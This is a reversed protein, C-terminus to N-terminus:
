TDSEANDSGAYIIMHIHSHIVWHIKGQTDHIKDQTYHIQGVYRVRRIQGLTHGTYRVRHIKGLTDPRTYRVLTDSGTYIQDQTYRIRYAPWPSSDLFFDRECGGGGFGKKM